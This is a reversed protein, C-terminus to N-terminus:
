TADSRFRSSNSTQRARPACCSTASFDEDAIMPQGAQQAGNRLIDFRALINDIRVQPLREFDM